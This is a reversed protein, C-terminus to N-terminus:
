WSFRELCVMTEYRGNKTGTNSGGMAAMAEAPAHYIVIFKKM